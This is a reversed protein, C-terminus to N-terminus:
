CRFFDSILPLLITFSTKLLCDLVADKIHSACLTELEVLDVPFSVPAAEGDVNVKLFVIILTSKHVVRTSKDALVNGAGSRLSKTLLNNKMKSSVHYIKDVAVTKSHSVRAMNISIGDQLDILSEFDTFPKNNKAM